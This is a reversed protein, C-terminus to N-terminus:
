SYRSGDRRVYGEGPRYLMDIGPYDTSDNADNRTGIELIVADKGSRNQLHHGNRAGAPFAARV